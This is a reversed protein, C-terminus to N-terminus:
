NIASTTTRVYIRRQPRVQKGIPPVNSESSSDKLVGLLTISNYIYNDPQIVHPENEIYQVKGGEGYLLVLKTGERTHKHRTPGHARHHKLVIHLCGATEVRPIHHALTVGRWIVVAQDRFAGPPAFTENGRPQLWNKRGHSLIAASVLRQKVGEVHWHTDHIEVKLHGIM